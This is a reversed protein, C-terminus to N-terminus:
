ALELISVIVDFAAATDSTVFIGDGTELILKNMEGLPALTQAPTVPIAKIFRTPTAGDDHDLTVQASAAIINCISMGVVIATTAAPVTYNGVRVRTVGCNRQVLRKFTQTAM